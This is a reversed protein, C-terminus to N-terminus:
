CDQSLWPQEVFHTTDYYILYNPLHQDEFEFNLCLCGQVTLAPFSSIQCLKM